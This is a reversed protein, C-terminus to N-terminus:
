LLGKSLRQLQQQLECNSGTESIVECIVARMFYFMAIQNPSGLNGYSIKIFKVDAAWILYILINLRPLESVYYQFQFPKLICEHATHIWNNVKQLTDRQIQSQRLKKLLVLKAEELRLEEKLQKIIREREAPSSKQVWCIVVDIVGHFLFVKFDVLIYLYIEM